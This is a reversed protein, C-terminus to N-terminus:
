PAIPTIGDLQTRRGSHGIITVEVGRMEQQPASALLSEPNPASSSAGQPLPSSFHPTATSSTIPPAVRGPNDSIRLASTEVRTRFPASTIEATVSNRLGERALAEDARTTAAFIEWPMQDDGRATSFLQVFSSAFLATLAIAALVELLSFGHESRKM